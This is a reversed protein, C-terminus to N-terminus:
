ANKQRESKSNQYRVNRVSSMESQVSIEEMFENKSYQYIKSFENKSCQYIKWSITRVTSIYRAASTRVTGVNRAHV